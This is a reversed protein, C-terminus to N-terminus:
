SGNSFASNSEQVDLVSMGTVQEMLWGNMDSLMPVTVEDGALYQRCHAQLRAAHLLRLEECFDAETYTESELGRLMLLPLVQAAKYRLLAKCGLPFKGGVSIAGAFHEPEALALRLAMSGGTHLGAIFVREAHVNFKEKALAICEHVYRRATAVCSDNQSWTYSYGGAELIPGRPAIAVYNQMSVHQMIKVVQREDDNPGHLWIVLPYAYNKEYGLPTLTRYVLSEGSFEGSFENDVWDKATLTEVALQEQFPRKTTQQLTKNVALYTPLRNM